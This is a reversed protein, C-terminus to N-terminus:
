RYPRRERTCTVSIEMEVTAKYPDLDAKYENVKAYGGLLFQHAGRTLLWPLDSTGPLHLSGDSKLMCPSVETFTATTFPDPSPTADDPLWSRGDGGQFVAGRTGDKKVVQWRYGLQDARWHHSCALDLRTNVWGPSGAYPGEAPGQSLDGGTVWVDCSSDVGDRDLLPASSPRVWTAYAPTALLILLVSTLALIRKKM